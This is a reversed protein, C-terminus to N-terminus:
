DHTTLKHHEATLRVAISAKEDDTLTIGFPETQLMARQALIENCPSMADLLEAKLRKLDKNNLHTEVAATSDSLKGIFENAVAGKIKEAVDM